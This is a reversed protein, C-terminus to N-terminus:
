FPLEEAQDLFEEFKHIRRRFADFTVPEDTQVNSYQKEFPINSVIFVKTFCATKDAYRCPLSIPYGDLYNLMETIPLSSRFEDFLLVDQGSYGYFPHNYNTVRYVNSYGYKEMVSRTKGSGPPGFMYTVELDRWKERYQEELLTQRAKEIHPLKTLASPASRLIEANSAGDEIMHLVEESFSERKSREPPLEGSEEFTDPLNTEHKRDEQWKGEKRIYDRNEQHTGKAAEIHAGYFRTQLTTFEIANKAYLYLHTHPTGQEGIEDCMCWYVVSKLSSLSQKIREHSFGHEVPNNITLQYKRTKQTIAGKQFFVFCLTQLLTISVKQM